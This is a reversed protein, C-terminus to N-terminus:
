HMACKRTLAVAAAAAARSHERNVIRKETRAHAIKREIGDHREEMAVARNQEVRKGHLHEKVRAVECRLVEAATDDIM